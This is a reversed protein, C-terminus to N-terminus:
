FTTDTELGLRELTSDDITKKISFNILFSNTFFSPLPHSPSFASLFPLHPPLLFNYVLTM